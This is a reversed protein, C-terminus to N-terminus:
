GGWVRGIAAAIRAEMREILGRNADVVAREAEIEAVIARQQLSDLAISIKSSKVQSTTLIGTYQMNQSCNTSQPAIANLHDKKTYANMLELSKM